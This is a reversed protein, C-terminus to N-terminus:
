DGAPHDPDAVALRALAAERDQPDYLAILTTHGTDDWTSCALASIEFAAGENSTGTFLTVTV